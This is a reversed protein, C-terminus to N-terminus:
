IRDGDALSNYTEYASISLAVIAAVLSFLYTSAIVPPRLITLLAVLAAALDATLLVVGLSVASLIALVRGASTKM